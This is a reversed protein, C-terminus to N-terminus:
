SIIFGLLVELRVHDFTVCRLVYCTEVCLFDITRGLACPLILQCDVYSM